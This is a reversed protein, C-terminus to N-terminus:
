AKRRAVHRDARKTPRHFGTGEAEWLWWPDSDVFVEIGDSV